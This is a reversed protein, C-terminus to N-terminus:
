IKWITLETQHKKNQSDMSLHEKKSMKPEPPGVENKSANDSKVTAEKKIYFLQM